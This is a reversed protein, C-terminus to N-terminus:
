FRRTPQVGCDQAGDAVFSHHFTGEGYFNEIVGKRGGVLVSYRTPTENGLLQAFAKQSWPSSRYRQYYICSKSKDLNHVVFDPVLDATFHYVTHEEYIYSLSSELPSRRIDNLIVESYPQNRERPIPMISSDLVQMSTLANWRDNVYKAQVSLGLNFEGAKSVEADYAIRLGIPRGQVSLLPEYTVNFVHMRPMVIVGTPSAALDAEAEAILQPGVEDISREILDAWEPTQSRRSQPRSLARDIPRFSRERSFPEGNIGHGTLVVRFPHAPVIMLGVFRSWGPRPKRAISFPEIRAGNEDVAEFKLTAIAEEGTVYAEVVYKKGIM